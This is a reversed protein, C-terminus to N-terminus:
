MFFRFDWLRIRWWRNHSVEDEDQLIILHFIFLSIDHEAQLNFTSEVHRELNSNM